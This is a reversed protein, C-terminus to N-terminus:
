IALIFVDTCHFLFSLINLVIKSHGKAPYFVYLSIVHSEEGISCDLNLSSLGYNCVQVPDSPWSDTMTPYDIRLQQIAAIEGETLSLAASICLILIGLIVSIWKDNTMQCIPGTPLERSRLKATSLPAILTVAPSQGLSM